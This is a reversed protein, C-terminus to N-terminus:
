EKHENELWSVRSFFQEGNNIHNKKKKLGQFANIM